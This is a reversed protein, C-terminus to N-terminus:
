AIGIEDVFSATFTLSPFLLNGEQLHSAQAESASDCCEQVLTNMISISPHLLSWTQSSVLRPVIVPYYNRSFTMPICCTHPSDSTVM